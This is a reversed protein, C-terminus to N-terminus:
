PEPLIVFQGSNVFDMHIGAPNEGGFMHNAGIAIHFSGNRKEDLLPYGCLETVNPNMGFGLECIVTDEPALSQLFQEIDPCSSGSLKGDQIYLIVDKFVGIDELHIQPFFVSGQTKTELPAIYVEGCPLDGDGADIHWQRGSTDFFLSCGNGTVLSFRLHRSLQAVKSRCQCHLAEYDISYAQEMRRIYEEPPLGSEQANAPTPIRIQTFRKAKLLADFLRRMYSRYFAMHNDDLDRGLVVPRYTFVDLVANLQSFPAFYSDPFPDEEAQCFLDYNATRSQQLLIPAAGADAVASVFAEAIEKDADEGWFHVLIREGQQVGTAKVLDSIYSPYM